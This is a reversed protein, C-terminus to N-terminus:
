YYNHQWTLSICISIIPHRKTPHKYLKIGERIIKQIKNETHKKTTFEGIIKKFIKNNSNMEQVKNTYFLTKADKVMNTMINTYRLYYNKVDVNDPHKRVKM